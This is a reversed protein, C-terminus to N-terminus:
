SRWRGYRRCLPMTSFPMSSISCCTKTTSQDSCTAFSSTPPPSSTFWAKSPRSTPSKSCFFHHPLNTKFPSHHTTFPQDRRLIHSRRHITKRSTPHVVLPFSPTIYPTSGARIAARCLRTVTAHTIDRSQQAFIALLCLNGM